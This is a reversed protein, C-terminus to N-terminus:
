FRAIADANDAYPSAVYVRRLAGPSPASRSSLVKCHLRRSTQKLGPRDAFQCRIPLTAKVQARRVEESFQYIVAVHLECCREVVTLTELSGEELFAEM